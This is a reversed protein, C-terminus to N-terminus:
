RRAARRRFVLFVGGALAAAGVVAIPGMAASLGTAPLSATSPNSPSTVCEPTSPPYSLPVVLSPNVELTATIAGRTWAFNGPVEVWEGNEFAWGPWGTAEGAANVSAGPWLVRGSLSGDVLTGLPIAATNTGDTLVLQAENSTAQSDPDILTVDYYIWPADNDCVGVATSGALTPTAPNTPTYDDSEAQAATPAGLAVVAVVALAFFFSRKM